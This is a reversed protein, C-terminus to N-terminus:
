LALIQKRRTVVFLKWKNIVLVFLSYFDTEEAFHTENIKKMANQEKRSRLYSLFINLDFHWCKSIDRIYGM